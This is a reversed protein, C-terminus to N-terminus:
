FRIKFNLGGIKLYDINTFRKMEDLLYPKFRFPFKLHAFDVFDRSFFLGKFNNKPKCKGRVFQESIIKFQKLDIVTQVLKLSSKRHKLIESTILTEFCLM